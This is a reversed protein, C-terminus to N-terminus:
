ICSLGYYFLNNFKKKNFFNVKLFIFLSLKLCILSINILVVFSIKKSFYLITFFFSTVQNLYTIISTCLM